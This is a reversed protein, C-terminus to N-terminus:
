AQLSLPPRLTIKPVVIDSQLWEANPFGFKERTWGSMSRVCEPQFHPWLRVWIRKYMEAAQWEEGRTFHKASTMPIGCLIIHTFDLLRPVVIGALGSSGAWDRVFDTVHGHTMTHAWVRSPKPHGHAARAKLWRDLCEPHMTVVQCEGPFLPIMDNIVFATTLLGLSNCISFATEYEEIVDEGGGLVLAVPNTPPPLPELEAQLIESPTPDNM